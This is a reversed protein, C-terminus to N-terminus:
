SAKEHLKKGAQQSIIVLVAIVCDLIICTIFVAQFSGFKEYIDTMLPMGFSGVIYGLAVIYSFIKGFNKSGFVTMALATIGVGCIVYMVDNVGAGFIALYPM